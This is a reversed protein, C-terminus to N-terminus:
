QTPPEQPPTSEGSEQSVGETKAFALVIILIPILAILVGWWSEKGLNEAIAMWVIINIVFNVVPIFYLIIWWVPKKAIQLMLIINLIPIWAFVPNDANAKKAIRYLCYAFFLYIALWFILYVFAFGAFVGPSVPGTVEYTYDLTPAVQALYNM